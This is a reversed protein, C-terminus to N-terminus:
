AIQVLRSLSKANISIEKQAEVSFNQGFCTVTLVKQLVKAMTFWYQGHVGCFLKELKCLAVTANKKYNGKVYDFM